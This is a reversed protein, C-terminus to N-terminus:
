YRKIITLLNEGNKRSYVVDDMLRSILTIGMGGIKYKKVNDYDYGLHGHFPYFSQM